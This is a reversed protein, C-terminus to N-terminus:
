WEPISQQPLEWIIKKDPIGFTNLEQRIMKAVSERLVAIIIVDFNLNVLDRPYLVDIEEFFIKRRSKDVLAIPKDIDNIFFQFLYDIGVSGMGYIVVKKDKFRKINSISYSTAAMKELSKDTFKLANRIERRLWFDLLESKLPFNLESNFNLLSSLLNVKKQLIINDRGHSLSIDNVEYVYDCRDIVKVRNCNSLCALLLLYDEGFCQKEPLLKFNNKIFDRKYLKSWMSSTLKTAENVFYKIILKTRDTENQVSFFDNYPEVECVLNGNHESLFWSHVFDANNEILAYYLNGFFESKIYDDADIFGIYQGKAKEIGVKRAVVSGQNVTHIVEFRSDNECFLDCIKGSNDTSGDDVVIVQINTYTQCKISELCRVISKEAQYVPVIISILENDM